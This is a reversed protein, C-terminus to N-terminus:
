TTPSLCSHELLLLLVVTEIAALAEPEPGDDPHAQQYEFAGEYIQQVLTPVPVRERRVLVKTVSHIAERQLRTLAAEPIGPYVRAHVLDWPGIRTVPAM